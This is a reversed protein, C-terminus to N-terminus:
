ASECEHADSRRLNRAIDSEVTLLHRGPMVLEHTCLEINDCRGGGPRNSSGCCSVNGAGDYADSLTLAAVRAVGPVDVLLAMVESRYVTRGFRWGSGDPGGELPDFFADLRARALQLVQEGEAECSLHLTANVGVRRYHPAIARIESTILRRPELYRQVADLLARSPLPAPKPCPPIVILTITGPAPYCPLHPEHNAVARVRAVPVGPTALALREVDALTVAKDVSTVLDFARAQASALLERPAGGTAAFNQEVALPKALAAIGPFLAINAATDPM